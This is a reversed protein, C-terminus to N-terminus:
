YLALYNPESPHTVAYSQTFLAGNAALTNIYPASASGIIQSEGHNEEIVIVVKDPSPVGNDARAASVLVAASLAAAIAWVVQTLSYVRVTTKLKRHYGRTMSAEQKREGFPAPKQM